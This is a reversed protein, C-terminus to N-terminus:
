EQRMVGVLRYTLSQHAANLPKQYPRDHKNRNGHAEPVKFIYRGSRVDILAAPGNVGSVQIISLWDVLRREDEEPCAPPTHRAEVEPEHSLRHLQEAIVQMPRPNYM